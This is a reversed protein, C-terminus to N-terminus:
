FVNHPSEISFSSKLSSTQSGSFMASSGVSNGQNTMFSNASLSNTLSNRLSAHSSDVIPINRAAIYGEDKDTVSSGGRMPNDINDSMSKRGKAIGLSERIVEEALEEEDLIALREARTSTTFVTRADDEIDFGVSSADMSKGSLRQGSVQLILHDPLPEHHVWPTMLRRLCVWAGKQISCFVFTCGIGASPTFIVFMFLLLTEKFSAHKDFAVPSRNYVLDYSSGGVRAIIQVLPYWVLKRVLHYLPDQQLRETGTRNYIRVYLAVVLFVSIAIIGVRAYNYVNLALHVDFSRMYEEVGILIGISVAAVIAWCVRMFSASPVKSQVIM